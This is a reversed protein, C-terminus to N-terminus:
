ADPIGSYGTPAADGYFTSLYVHFEQEQSCGADASSTDTTGASKAFVRTVWEGELDDQDLGRTELLSKEIRLTIPSESENAGFRKPDDSAVAGTNSDREIGPALVDFQFQSQCAASTPTWVVSVVITELDLQEDDSIEWDHQSIYDPDNFSIANCTVGGAACDAASWGISLLVRGVQDLPVSYPDGSALRELTAAMQTVEGARVDIKAAFARFGIKAVDVTYTGPDLNNIVFSGDDRTSAPDQDQQERLQVQANAVPLSEGDTVTGQIAGTDESVNPQVPDDGGTSPADGGTCGALAVTVMALTILVANLRMQSALGGKGM